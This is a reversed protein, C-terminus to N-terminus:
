LFDKYISNLLEKTKEKKDDVAPKKGKSNEEHKNLPVSDRFQIMLRGIKIVKNTIDEIDATQKELKLQYSKDLKTIEDKLSTIEFLIKNIDEINTASKDISCTYRDLNETMKEFNCTLKNSSETLKNLKFQTALVEQLINGSNSHNILIDVIDNISNQMDDLNAFIHKLAEENSKLKKIRLLTVISVITAIISTIFTVWIAIQINM